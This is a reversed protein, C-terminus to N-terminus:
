KFFSMNLMIRRQTDTPTFGNHIISNNFIIADNEKSGYEKGDIVTGGNCTTFNFITITINDPAKNTKGDYIDYHKALEMRQNQNPYLNLKMRILKSFSIEKELFYIIPEFKAFFPSAWGQNKNFNEDLPNNYLIHTFMYNNELKTNESVPMNMQYFSEARANYDRWLWHFTDSEIMGKLSQYFLPSLFNEKIIIDESM